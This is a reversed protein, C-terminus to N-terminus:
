PNAMDSNVAAILRTAGPQHETESPNTTNPKDAM